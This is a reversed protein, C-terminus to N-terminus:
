QDLLIAANEYFIRRELSKDGCCAKKIIKVAPKQNGYPWDSAYMVREQGFVSLLERVHGPSQFSTDVMVNKFGGLLAMVERFEYLGAHGAIFTVRPFNAVLDRAYSIAGFGANEKKKQEAGLYYSSMGCHFLVPLQFPAFAEIARFTKETDLAINQIIPHLKLGKAGQAVDRKLAAEVDYAKTYDIGTFAIIGDDKAQVNKLDDFTVYPPIPMCVSKLIGAENMSRRMNELTAM